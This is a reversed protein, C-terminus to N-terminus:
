LLLRFTEQYASPIPSLPPCYSLDTVTKFIQGSLVMVVDNSESVLPMMLRKTLREPQTGHLPYLSETYLACRKGIIEAYLALVYDRYPPRLLEDLYQGSLSQGTVAEVVTGALRYRLRGDELIDTLMIHPLIEPGIEVPDIDKRSPLERGAKKRSWYLFLRQLLPQDIGAPPRASEGADHSEPDYGFAGRPRKM